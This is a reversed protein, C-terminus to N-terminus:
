TPSWDDEWSYDITVNAKSKLSSIENQVRKITKLAFDKDQAYPYKNYKEIHERIAARHGAIKAKIENATSM